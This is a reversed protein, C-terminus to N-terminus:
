QLNPSADKILLQPTIEFPPMRRESAGRRGISQGRLVRFPGSERIWRGDM